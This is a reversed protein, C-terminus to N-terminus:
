RRQFPPSFIISLQRRIPLRSVFASWRDSNISRLICGLFIRQKVGEAFIVFRTSPIVITAKKCHFSDLKLEKKLRNRRTAWKKKASHLAVKITTSKKLAWEVGIKMSRRKCYLASRSGNQLDNNTSPAEKRTVKQLLSSKYAQFWLSHTAVVSQFGTSDRRYHRSNRGLGRSLDRSTVTTEKWVTAWSWTGSPFPSSINEWRRM